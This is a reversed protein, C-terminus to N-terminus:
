RAPHKRESSGACLSNQGQVARLRDKTWSCRGLPVTYSDELERYVTVTGEFQGYKDFTGEFHHDASVFEEPTFFEENGILNVVTGDRRHDLFSAIMPPPTESPMMTNSFGRLMKLLVAPLNSEENEEDIDNELVKDVPLILFLAGRQPGVTQNRILDLILPINQSFSSLETEIRMQLSLPINDEIKGLNVEVEGILRSLLAEDPTEQELTELPVEIEELNIGGAEFFSWNIFSVIPSDLRGDREARSLVLVQPGITAIALRGIGKEGLVPRAPKKADRYPPSIGGRTAIKSETGLTLWRQEFEDRTMGVGDDRLVLIRESRYYDVRVSDAYADYANKFLEHIASPIGAMQQRGLMDLARARVSIRPM